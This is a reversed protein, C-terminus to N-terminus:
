NNCKLRRFDITLHANQEFIFYIHMLFVPDEIKDEFECYFFYKQVPRKEACICYM